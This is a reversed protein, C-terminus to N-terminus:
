SFTFMMSQLWMPWAELPRCERAVPACYIFHPWITAYVAIGFWNMAPISISLLIGHSLGVAFYATVLHSIIWRM